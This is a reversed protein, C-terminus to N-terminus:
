SKWIDTEPKNARREGGGIGQIAWRQQKHRWRSASENIPPVRWMLALIKSVSSRRIGDKKRL